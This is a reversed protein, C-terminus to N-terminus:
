KVDGQKSTNESGFITAPAEDPTFAFLGACAFVILGMGAQDGKRDRRM